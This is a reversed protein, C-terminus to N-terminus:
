LSSPLTVEDQYFQAPPSWDSFPGFDAAGVNTSVASCDDNWLATLDTSLNCFPNTVEPACGGFTQCLAALGYAADNDNNEAFDIVERTMFYVNAKAATNDGVFETFINMSEAALATDWDVCTPAEKLWAPNYLQAKGTWLGNAKDVVLKIREPARPDDNNCASDAMLVHLSWTNANTYDFTSEFTGSATADDALSAIDVRITSTTGDSSIYLFPVNQSDVALVQFAGESKTYSVSFSENGDQVPITIPTATVIAEDVFPAVSAIIQQSANLLDEALQYYLRLLVPQCTYLNLGECPDARVAAQEFVLSDPTFGQAATQLNTSLDGVTVGNNDFLRETNCSLTLLLCIVFLSLSRMPVGM